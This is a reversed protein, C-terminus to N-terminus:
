KGGAPIVLLPTQTHYSMKTTMGTNFLRYFFSKEKHYTVMALVDINNSKIYEQLTNDFESGHLYSVTLADEGYVSKLRISYENLNNQLQQVATQTDEDTFSVVEIQANYLSVMEFLYDLIPRDEEFQNTAFVFKVPRKWQYDYPIVMLPVITKDILAATKSGWFKERFGTAGHTGMVVLDIGREESVSIISENLSTDTVITEIEIGDTEKISNALNNMNDNIDKLLMASYEGDLGVYRTYASDSREYSHLLIVQVPLYKATQVAFNVANNACESFDTPVLVKKM